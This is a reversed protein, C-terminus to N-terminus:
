AKLSGSSSIAVALVKQAALMPSSLIPIGLDGLTDTAVRMSAQALVICDPTGNAAISQRITKSIESSYNAMDGAEFYPWASDCLVLEISASGGNEKACDELLALTADRTSELCIAVMIQTGTEIAAEMMPRDIRVINPHTQAVRDALPGLTSCTCLVADAASLQELIETTQATVSLLGDTQASALLEPAVHHTRETEPAIDDVLAEFTEIHAQATHLFAIKMTPHGTELSNALTSLMQSAIFLIFDTKSLAWPHPTPSIRGWM